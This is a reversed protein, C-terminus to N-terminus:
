SSLIQRLSRISIWSQSNEEQATGGIGKLFESSDGLQVQFSAACLKKCHLSKPHFVAGNRGRSCARAVDEVSFGARCLAM